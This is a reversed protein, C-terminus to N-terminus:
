DSSSSRFLTTRSQDGPFRVDKKMLKYMPAAIDSFGSIFRRCYSCLGIFARVETLNKPTPWTQVALVKEKQVGIGQELIVHGLFSVSRRYFTCKTAHLKLNAARLRRLVEELREVHSAFDKSFIIMDDLYVLCTEYTLGCLVLDM